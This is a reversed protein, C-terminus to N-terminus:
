RHVIVFLNSMHASNHVYPPVTASVHVFADRLIFNCSFVQVLIEEFSVHTRHRNIDEVNLFFVCLTLLKHKFYM